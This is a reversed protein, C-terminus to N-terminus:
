RPCVLSNKHSIWQFLGLKSRFAEKKPGFLSIEVGMGRSKAQRARIKLTYQFVKLSYNLTHSQASKPM